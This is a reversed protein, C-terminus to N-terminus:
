TDYEALLFCIPFLNGGFNPFMHLQFYGDIILPALFELGEAM